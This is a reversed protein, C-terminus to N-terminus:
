EVPGISDSKENNCDRCALQVNSLVNRGGKSLPVRHDRTAEEFPIERRCVQCVGGFQDYLARLTIVPHSSAYTSPSPGKVGFTQRLLTSVATFQAARRGLGAATLDRVAARIVGIARNVVMNQHIALVEALAEYLPEGAQPREGTHRRVVGLLHVPIRPMDGM